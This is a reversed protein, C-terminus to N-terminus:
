EKSDKLIAPVVFYGNTSDPALKLISDTAIQKVYDNRLVNVNHPLEQIKYKESLEKLREVYSLLSGLREILGQVQSEEIAIMSIKGLKLIEEKTIKM